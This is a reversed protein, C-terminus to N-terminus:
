WNMEMLTLINCVYVGRVFEGDYSFLSRLNAPFLKSRTGDGKLVHALPEDVDEARISGNKIRAESCGGNSVIRYLCPFALSNELAIRMEAIRKKSDVAQQTLSIPIYHQLQIDM